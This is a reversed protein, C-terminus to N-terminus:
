GGKEQLFKVGLGLVFAVLSSINLVSYSKEKRKRDFILM